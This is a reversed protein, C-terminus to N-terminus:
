RSLSQALLPLPSPTLSLFGPSSSSGSLAGSSSFFSSSSSSVILHERVQKFIEKWEPPINKLDFGGSGFSISMKHEFNTPAQPAFKPNEEFIFEAFLLSGNPSGQSDTLMFNPMSKANYSTRFYAINKWTKKGLEEKKSSKNV